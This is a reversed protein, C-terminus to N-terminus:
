PMRTYTTRVETRTPIINQDPGSLMLRANMVTTIDVTVPMGTAADVLYTGELTGEGTLDVQSGGKRMEGKLAVDPSSVVLRVLKRKNSDLSEAYRCQMTLSTVLTGKTADLDQTDRIESSWTDGKSTKGGDYQPFLLRLANM